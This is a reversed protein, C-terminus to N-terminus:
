FNEALPKIALLGDANIDMGFGPKIHFFKDLDLGGEMLEKLYWTKGKKPVIPLNNKDKSIIDADKYLNTNDLEDWYILGLEKYNNQWSFEVEILYDASDQGYLEVYEKYRDKRKQIMPIESYKIWGESLWYINTYEEPRSTKDPGTGLLVPICDHVIPLILVAKKTRINYLGRGCFGYGLLISEPSSEEEIKDILEQLEITLKDPVDHLGQELFVLEVPEEMLENLHELEPRFVECAILIKSRTAM